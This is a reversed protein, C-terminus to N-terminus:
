ESIKLEDRAAIRQKDDLIARLEDFSMFSREESTDVLEVLGVINQLSGVDRRYIRVVYSEM